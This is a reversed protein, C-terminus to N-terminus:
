VMLNLYCHGQIIALATVDEHEGRILGGSSVELILLVTECSENVLDLKQEFNLFFIEVLYVSFDLNNDLPVKVIM